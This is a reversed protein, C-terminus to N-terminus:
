LRYKAPSPPQTCAMSIFPAAANIADACHANAMYKGSNAIIERSPLSSLMGDHGMAIDDDM